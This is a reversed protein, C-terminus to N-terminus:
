TTDAQARALAEPPAPPLESPAVPLVFRVTTGRGTESMVEITGGHAAIVADAISLGLGSGGRERSRGPDARYFRETARAAVDYEMGPGQDTIEIVAQGNRAVAATDIAAGEPTHILANGIVNAIVQRLRDVDGIVSVASDGSVSISRAPAVARADSAADDLLVRLDVPRRELPRSAGLKALTLMDDVLRAMRVAEQETRRMADDLDAANTLAGLRYLEAYGRITTVPTRLEHSADAVFQQLRERSATREDLAAQQAGLMHNLAEGLEGAETGAGATDVRQSLDGGAIAMATATMQKIPRIGLRIVWWTVAGLMAVIAATVLLEMTILRRMTERVDDLPLAIVYLQDGTARVVVRFRNAGDASGVTFPDGSDAGRGARVLDIVPTGARRGFNPGRCYVLEGNRDFVLEFFESFREGPGSDDTRDDPVRACRRNSQGPPPSLARDAQELRQDVQDVLHSRTTATVIVAVSGLALVVFTMGTLLRARLSLRVM